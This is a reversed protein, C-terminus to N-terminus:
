NYDDIHVVLVYIDELKSNDITFKTNEPLRQVLEHIPFDDSGEFGYCNAQLVFFIARKTTNQAHILTKNFNDWKDNGNSENLTGIVVTYDSEIAIDLYDNNFMQISPYKSRAVNVMNPNLDIGFYDVERNNEVGLYNYFDGRGAGFDKISFNMPPLYEEVWEYIQEQTELDPYGVIQPDNALYDPFNNDLDEKSTYNEIEDPLSHRKEELITSEEIDEFVVGMAEFDAVIEEPTATEFYADMKKQIAEVNMTKTQHILDEFNQIPM